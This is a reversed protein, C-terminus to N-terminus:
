MPSTGNCTLTFTTETNTKPELQPPTRWNITHQAQRDHMPECGARASRTQPGTAGKWASTSMGDGSPSSGNPVTHHRRTRHRKSSLSRLPPSTALRALSSPHPAGPSSGTWSAPGRGRGGSSMGLRGQSPSPSSCSSKVSMRYSGNSRGSPSTISRSEDGGRDRLGRRAHSQNDEFFPQCSLPLQNTTTLNDCCMRKEAHGQRVKARAPSALARLPRM